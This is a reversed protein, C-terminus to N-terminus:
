LLVKQNNKLFKQEAVDLAKFGIEKPMDGKEIHEFGLINAVLQAGFCIGLVPKDQQLARKIFQKQEQIHRHNDLVSDRSGLTIIHTFDQEMLLEEPKVIKFQNRREDLAQALLAPPGIPDNQIILTKM